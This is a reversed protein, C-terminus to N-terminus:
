LSGRVSNRFVGVHKGVHLLRESNLEYNILICLVGGLFSVVGEILGRVSLRVLNHVIQKKNQALKKKGRRNLLRLYSHFLRWVFGQLNARVGSAIM